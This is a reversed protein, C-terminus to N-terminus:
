FNHEYKIILHVRRLNLTVYWKYYYGKHFMFNIKFIFIIGTIYKYLCHWCCILVAKNKSSYVSSKYQATPVIVLNPTNTMQISTNNRETQDNFSCVIKLNEKSLFCFRLCKNNTNHQLTSYVTYLIVKHKM